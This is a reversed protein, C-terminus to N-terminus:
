NGIYFWFFFASKLIRLAVTERSKSTHKKLRYIKLEPAHENAKYIKNEHRINRNKCRSMALKGQFDLKAILSECSSENDYSWISIGSRSFKQLNVSDWDALALSRCGTSPTKVVRWIEILKRHLVL